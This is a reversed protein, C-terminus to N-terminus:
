CMSGFNFDHFMSVLCSLKFKLFFALILSYGIYFAQKGDIAGGNVLIESLELFRVTDGGYNYLNTTDWKKIFSGFISFSLLILIWGLIIKNSSFLNKLNINM